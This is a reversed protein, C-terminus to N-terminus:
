VADAAPLQLIRPTMWNILDANLQPSLWNRNALGPALLRHRDLLLGNVVACHRIFDDTELAFPMSFAKKPSAAFTIIKTWINLDPSKLKDVWDKGSACQMLYVPIGVRSDPFPRYCLIDLGGDKAADNIWRSIDGTAEGLLGALEAVLGNLRRVATPAWGTPHITWGVLSHTMAEATLREFLHGQPAHNRGFSQAWGPYGKTLSLLLCFGYASFSQWVDLPRVRLNNEVILPYGDGMLRRREVVRSFIDQVLEWAFDQDDYIESEQLIDVIDSGAVDEGHFLASAEIWDCCVDLEVNHEQISRRVGSQPVSLM